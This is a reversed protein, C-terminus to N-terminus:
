MRGFRLPFLGYINCIPEQDLRRVIREKELEFTVDQAISAAVLISRVRDPLQILREM